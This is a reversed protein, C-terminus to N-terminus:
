RTYSQVANALEAQRARLANIQNGYAMIARPDQSRVAASAQAELEALRTNVQELEAARESYLGEFGARPTLAAAPASAAAPAAAGTRAAGKKDNLAKLADAVATTPATLGFMQDVAMRAQAPDGFVNNAKELAGFYAEPTVAPKAARPKLGTPIPITGDKGRPLGTIDVMVSEGKDNQFERLNAALPRDANQRQIKLGEQAIGLRAADNRLSGTKFNADNNTKGVNLDLNFEERVAAALEKNVGSIVDLGGVDGRQLRRVGVAIKSLDAPSVEVPKTSDGKVIRFTSIGTKPDTDIALSRSQNNIFTRAQRAADGMPDKIVAQAFESDQQAEVRQREADQIAAFDKDNGTALALRSRLGALQQRYQPSTADVPNKVTLGQANAMNSGGQMPPLARGQLAAQDAAAFDADLAAETAPRDVGMTFDGIQRRIGDAEQERSATRRLADTELGYRELRAKSEAAEREDKASQLAQQMVSNYANQGLALGRVFSSM